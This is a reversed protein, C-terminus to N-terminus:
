LKTMSTELHTGQTMSQMQVGNSVGSRVTQGACRGCFIERFKARFAKSLLCYIVFNAASNINVSVNSIQSVVRRTCDLNDFDDFQQLTYLLHSMMPLLHCIVFLIAITAVVTSVAKKQQNKTKDGYKESGGREPGGGTSRVPASDIAARLNCILMLNLLTVASMPIVYVIAIFFTTKYTYTYVDNLFMETPSFGYPSNSNAEYEFFRPISYILSAVIIFGM